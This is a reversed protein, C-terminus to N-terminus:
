WETSLRLATGQLGTAPLEGWAASNLGLVARGLPSPFCRALQKVVLGPNDPRQLVKWYGGVGRNIRSIEERSHLVVYNSARVEVTPQMKSYSAFPTWFPPVHMKIKDQNVVLPTLWHPTNPPNFHMEASVCCNGQLYCKPLTIGTAVETALIIVWCKVQFHLWPHSPPLFILHCLCM